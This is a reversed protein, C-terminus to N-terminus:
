AVSAASTESAQTADSEQTQDTAQTADATEQTDDTQPILADAIGYKEATEQMTGNEYAEVFFENLKETLDSGKKFGVGYTEGEEENLIITHVLDPYSTDAGTMSGAMLMDIVCVGSTGASVEMLDRAQTDVAPVNLGM